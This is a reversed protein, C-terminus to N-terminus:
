GGVIGVLLARVARGGSRFKKCFVIVICGIAEDELAHRETARCFGCARRDCRHRSAVRVKVKGRPRFRVSTMVEALNRGIWQVVLPRKNARPYLIYWVM